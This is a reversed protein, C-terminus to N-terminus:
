AASTPRWTVSGSVADAVATFPVCVSFPVTDYWPQLLSTQTCGVETGNVTSTM